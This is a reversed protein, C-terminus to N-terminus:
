AAKALVQFNLPSLYGLASHRRERNYFIEIYEFVSLRAQKRTQYRDFCVLEMKLSHFFTETIANDYCDGKKSMSQRFLNRKLLSKVALSAYQSGRDSHFIAGKQPRKRGLAQQIAGLVLEKTMRESMAWGVIERNYIDLVVALYLWGEETWIYTIDSTWIKGPGRSLFNQALLNPAVPLNHKSNTTAKFKRRARAMIQHDKMLRAVRNKGCEIGNSVLEAHIRPSGYRERVKQHISKIAILLAENQIERMGKKKNTWKYYGSRSVNMTQCIKKVPFM